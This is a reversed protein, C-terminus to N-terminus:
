LPLPSIVADALACADRASIVFCVARTWPSKALVAPPAAFAARIWAALTSSRLALTPLPKSGIWSFHSASTLSLSMGPREPATSPSLPKPSHITLFLPAIAPVVVVRATRAAPKPAALMADLAIAAPPSAVHSRPTALPVFAQATPCAMRLATIFAFGITRTTVIMAASAAPRTMAYRSLSANRFTHSVAKLAIPSAPLHSHFLANCGAILAITCPKAHTTSPSAPMSSASPLMGPKSHAFVAASPSRPM